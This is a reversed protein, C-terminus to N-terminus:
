ASIPPSFNNIFNRPPRSFKKSPLFSIVGVYLSIVLWTQTPSLELQRQCIEIALCMLEDDGHSLCMGLKKLRGFYGLGRDESNGCTRGVAKETTPQWKCSRGIESLRDNQLAEDNQLDFSLENSLVAAPQLECDRVDGNMIEDSANVEGARLSCAGNQISRFHRSRALVRSNHLNHKNPVKNDSSRKKCNKWGVLPSLSYSKVGEPATSLDCQPMMAASKQDMMAKCTKQLNQGLLLKRNHSNPKVANSLHPKDHEGSGSGSVCSNANSATSNCLEQSNNILLSESIRQDSCDWRDDKDHMDLANLTPMVRSDVDRTLPLSDCIPPTIRHTKDDSKLDVDAIKDVSSPSRFVDTVNQQYHDVDADSDSTDEFFWRVDDDLDTIDTKTEASFSAVRRTASTSQRCNGEELCCQDVDALHLNTSLSKDKVDYFSKNERYSIFKADDERQCCGGSCCHRHINPSQQRSRDCSITQMVPKTPSHASPMENLEDDFCKLM